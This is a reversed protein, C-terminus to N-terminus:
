QRFLVRRRLFRPLLGRPLVPRTARASATAVCRSHLLRDPLHVPKRRPLGRLVPQRVVASLLSGAGSRRHPVFVGVISPVPSTTRATTVHRNWLFRHPWLGHSVHLQEREARLDHRRVSRLRAPLQLSDREARLRPQRLRTALAAIRRVPGRRSASTGRASAIAASRSASTPAARRLSASSLSAFATAM